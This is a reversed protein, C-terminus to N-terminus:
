ARLILDLTDPQESDLVSKWEIHTILFYDFVVPAFQRWVTAWWIEGDIWGGQPSWAYDSRAVTIDGHLSTSYRTSYETCRTHEDNRQRRITDSFISISIHGLPM